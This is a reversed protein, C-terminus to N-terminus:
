STWDVHQCGDHISYVAVKFGQRADLQADRIALDIAAGKDSAHSGNPTGARHVDFTKRDSNWVVQYVLDVHKKRAPNKRRELSPYSDM